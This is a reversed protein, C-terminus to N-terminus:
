KRELVVLLRTAFIGPLFSLFRDLVLALPLVREPYLSPKSFGGSALYATSVIPKVTRIIWEDLVPGLEKRVFLRWANGQAAYYALNRLDVGNPAFWRISEREAVPEHHFIKYVFKGLAGLGPEFLVVRGGPRLVRAFEHLATGPFELHHFVDFLILNGISADAFNLAYGDEVRDLWPNPFIDTLLCEPIVEKIAGIGSGLEVTKAGSDPALQEAILRYFGRYIRRLLAKKEWVSRNLRMENLHQEASKDVQEGIMIEM